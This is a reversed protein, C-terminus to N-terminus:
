LPVGRLRRRLNRIENHETPPVCSIGFPNLDTVFVRESSPIVCGTSPNIRWESNVNSTAGSHTIIIKDDVFTSAINHPIPNSMNVKPCPVQKRSRVDFVRIADKGGDAINTTYFFKSNYLMQTGHPSSLDTSSIRELAPVNHITVRRGNQSPVFLPTNPRVAIHPDGGTPKVTILECTFADYVAVFGVDSKGGLFTVYHYFGDSTADHPKANARAAREPRELTCSIRRTAIDHVITLNDIDCTTIVTPRESYLDQTHLSHFVGRPMPLTTNLVLQNNLLKIIVMVNNKRDGVWLERAGGNFSTFTLAPYMPEGDNPLKFSADVKLTDPNVM